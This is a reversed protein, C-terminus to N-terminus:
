GAGAIRRTFARHWREYRRGILGGHRSALPLYVAEELALGAPWQDRPRLHLHRAHDLREAIVAAAGPGDLLVLAELLEDVPSDLPSPLAAVGDPMPRVCLEPRVSEHCAAAALLDPDTLAADDILILVTRAPHLADIDHDDALLADRWELAATLAVDVHRLGSLPIIERSLRDRVRQRM